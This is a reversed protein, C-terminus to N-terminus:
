RPPVYRALAGEDDGTNDLEYTFVGAGNARRVTVAAQVEWDATEFRRSPEIEWVSGDELTVYQGDDNVARIFHGPGVAAYAPQLATRRAPESAPKNAPELAPKHAAACGSALTLSAVLVVFARSLRVGDRAPADDVLPRLAPPERM